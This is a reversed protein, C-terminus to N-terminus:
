EEWNGATGCGRPPSTCVGGRRRPRGLTQGLGERRLFLFRPRHHQSGRPSNAASRSGSEPTAGTHHGKLQGAAGGRVGLWGWESGLEPPRCVPPARCVAVCTFVAFHPGYRKSLAWCYTAIASISQFFSPRAASSTRAICRSARRGEGFGQWRALRRPRWSPGREPVWRRGRPGGSSPFTRTHAHAQPPAPLAQQGVGAPFTGPRTGGSPLTHPPHCLAGRGDGEDVVAHVM